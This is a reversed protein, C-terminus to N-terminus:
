NLYRFDVCAYLSHLIGAWADPHDQGINHHALYNLALSKEAESPDRGLTIKYALSLRQELNLDKKELLRKAANEAEQIVFPDNMLFLAQTPVTSANRVGSVLNPNPFDFIDLMEPIRNRDLKDYIARETTKESTPNLKGSAVLMADHIAEVQLRRRNQRSFLENDPDAELAKASAESSMQYTSSLLIRRILKKTSWGSNIFDSALHDLLEPHTPRRGMEGFNDNTAVIGRGFLHHWVRNVYVRATLTNDTSTVWRALELRGSAGTPIEPTPSQGEPTAATIFGRKVKKGLNRIGGRVHIYWDGAETHEEVSMTKPAKPPAAKKHAEIDKKLAAIATQVEKKKAKNEEEKPDTKKPKKEAILPLTSKPGGEPLLRIADIIVVGTTGKTDIKVVDWEGVELNYKGLSYFVGEIPPKKQQNIHVTKDELDTFITVPVKPSRNTSATYSIQVEYVGSKPINVKWTASKEGKNQGNDHRYSKGVYTASHTSSVWTGVLTAETDDIVIGEFKKPDVSKTSSKHEPAKGGNLVKLEAEMEKLKDNLAKAAEEHKKREQGHPDKLDREIFNAVSGPRSSNTSRFIGALSYYESTPLPDFPHDHCRACGITMGLFARSVAALQEDVIEMRLLAKDQLEYNHPGLALFTTGIMNDNYEEDTASPLLDGAIQQRIFHDIPKDDRYSALVWDRYRYANPFQLNRGGGTTDAYRAVDLWHRGWREAYQPSDLLTDITTELADQSPNELFADIQEPTPPLGILDFYVRRLLTGWDAPEAPQLNKKELKGLVFHDLPDKAWETDQTKPPQPHSVPIFSWFKRADELSKSRPGTHVYEEELPQDRPDPAGMEIWKEFDKILRNPLKGAKPMRIDNNDFRIAILLRSEEPKGPIIVAGNEGGMEWGAKRDLLLGAKATKEKASHCEYCHKVLAPRIKKEFFEMGEDAGLVQCIGTGLLALLAFNRTILPKM